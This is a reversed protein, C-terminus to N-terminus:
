APHAREDLPEESAVLVVRLAGARDDWISRRPGPPTGPPLLEAVLLSRDGARNRRRLLLGGAGPGHVPLLWLEVGRSFAVALDNPFYQRALAAPLHLYGKATLKVQWMRM